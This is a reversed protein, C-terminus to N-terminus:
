VAHQRRVHREQLPQEDIRGDAADLVGSVPRMRLRRAREKAGHPVAQEDSAQGVAAVVAHASLPLLSAFMSTERPVGTSAGPAAVACHAGEGGGGPEGM